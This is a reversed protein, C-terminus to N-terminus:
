NNCQLPSLLVITIQKMASIFHRVYPVHVVITHFFPPKISILSIDVNVSKCILPGNVLCLKRVINGYSM